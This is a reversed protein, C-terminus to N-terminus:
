PVPKHLKVKWLCLAIASLLLLITSPEPAPVFSAEYHLIPGTRSDPFFDLAIDMPAQPLGCGHIEFISACLFTLPQYEHFEIRYEPISPGALIHIIDAVYRGDNPDYLFLDLDTELGHYGDGASVHCPGTCVEILTGAPDRINMFDASALPALMLLLPLLKLM